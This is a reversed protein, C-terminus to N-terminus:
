LSSNKIKDLVKLKTQANFIGTVPLGETEQFRKIASITGSGAQGDISGYYYGLLKLSSQIFFSSTKVKIKPKYSNYSSTRSHGSNHYHYVGTKRNYHGGNSDTRGSHANLQFIIILIALSFIFLYTKNSMKM